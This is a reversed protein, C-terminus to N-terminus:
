KETKSSNEAANGHQQPPVSMHKRLTIKSETGNKLRILNDKHLIVIWMSIFMTCLTFVIKGPYFLYVFVPMLSVGIISGLSVYRTIAVIIVFIVVLILAIRWDFVAVMAATTLVGKGGKFDYFVPYVHGLIVFMFACIRGNDGLILWSILVAIVGKLADGLVVLFTPWIGLVRYANTSGANGSGQTRLDLGTFWKTIIIGSNISGLLYSGVACILIRLFPM